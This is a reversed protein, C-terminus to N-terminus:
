ATKCRRVTISRIISSLDKKYAVFEMGVSELIARVDAEQGQGFEFIAYGKDSLLLHINVALERYCNLGDEGGDLALKPEFKSVEAELKKIDNKIIYPPNSIILDFEGKIGDAWSSVVFDSRNALKLKLSNSKAVNLADNSIDIGIGQANRYEYLLSLLLCGTGTGFDAIKLPQQKDPFLELAQEILCESDARPDLTHKTVNFELGWFERKGTIHSIPERNIRRTIYDNFKSVEDESLNKDPHAIIKERTLNAAHMMLIDADLYASEIKASRLKQKANTLITKISPM